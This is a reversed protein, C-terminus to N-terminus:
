RGLRGRLPQWMTYLMAVLATLIMIGLIDARAIFAYWLKFGSMATKPQMLLSNVAVVVFVVAATLALVALVDIVKYLMPPM